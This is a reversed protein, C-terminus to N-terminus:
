AREQLCATAELEVLAQDELLAAVQVLTMAPFHRGLHRRWVEGLALTELLYARKDTVYVTLRCISDPAGGAARVVELANALARDFQAVFGDAFRREADWGVQGAVFLFRGEAVVGNSYGRPKGLAPPNLLAPTM